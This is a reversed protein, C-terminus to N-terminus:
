LKFGVAQKQFTGTPDYKKSVKNLREYAEPGYSKYPDQWFGAYNVYKFPHYANEQKTFEEIQDIVDKIIAKVKTYADADPQAWYTSIILVVLKEHLNANPDFGMANASRQPPFQQYTLVSMLNDIDALGESAARWATNIKKLITPTIFFTTCAFIAYQNKPQGSHLEEGFNKTTDIRMTNQLQPQIDAFRKLGSGNVIPRLYVMNNSVFSNNVTYLFSMEIAALPDYKGSKLDLFAALQANETADLPYYIAGGWLTSEVLTLVDFRTIVGFNSQGGKLARFLEAHSEANANVIEGSALVVEFNVVNDCAFGREPSFFSLGGGSVFGGVGVSSERAGIATRNISDLYEYVKDWELGAGLQLVDDKESLVISNLGRLDITVGPDTNSMEPHPSHGGSRIAFKTQVSGAIIRIAEAVDEASTPSVICNPRQRATQYFYSEVSSEYTTTNPYSVKGPLVAELKECTASKSDGCQIGNGGAARPLTMMCISLVHLTPFLHHLVGAYMAKM